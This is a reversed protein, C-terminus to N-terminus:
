EEDDDQSLYKVATVMRGFSESLDGIEDNSKVDVNVSMDGQSIKDAVTQLQKIPKTIMQALIYIVLSSVILTGIILWIITNQMSSAEAFMESESILSAISLNMGAYDGVPKVSDYYVQYTTGDQVITTFGSEQAVMSEALGSWGEGELDTLYTEQLTEGIGQLNYESEPHVLIRGYRDLLITSGTDGITNAEITAQVTRFDVPIGVLGSVGQEDEVPVCIASALFDHEPVPSTELDGFAMEGGIAREWYNGGRAPVNMPIGGTPIGIVEFAGAHAYGYVDAIFLNELEDSWYGWMRNLYVTTDTYVDESVYQAYTESPNAGRLDGAQEQTTQIILPDESVAMALRTKQNYFQSIYESNKEATQQLEEQAFTTMSGEFANTAVFMCILLAVVLIVTSTVIFKWHIKNFIKM